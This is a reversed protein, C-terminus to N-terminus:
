RQTALKLTLSSTSSKATGGTPSFTLKLSVNLKGKENLVKKAAASPKFAVIFTGGKAANLVVHGVTIQKKGVKAKGLVDLKGAGPLKVSLSASGNKSSVTKRTLTFLNSVPTTGKDTGGGTTGGGTTGGGGGGGGSGSGAKNWGIEAVGARSIAILAPPVPAYDAAFLTAQGAESVISEEYDKVTRAKGEEEPTNGFVAANDDFALGYTLTCIGFGEPANAGSTKSWDGFSTAPTGGFNTKLCNAGKQSPNSAATTRFGNVEDATPETFKGSGNEVQTWYPTTPASGASANIALTPNANRATAIDSYGISGDTATLKEVLKGNGNECNSTLFDVSDAQKGPAATGGCQGGSGFEAGPWERNGNSTGSEFKTTWERAPEITRLYDKFAFTTGSKDFRVVRIIPVECDPDGALEPFAVSWKSNELGAWVKEFKAKPLRVRLLAKKTPTGEIEAKTVTRYEDKLLEPNCGEPFNVLPAVAGAAIPFIHVKGENGAVGDPVVIGGEETGGSNMLAVQAPTPPDDSGAFRSANNRLEMTAIGAGSGNANYAANITGQGPTGLCYGSKFNLNFVEQAGKAFSAGNGEINPGACKGTTFDAGAPAAPGLTAFATTALVLLGAVRARGRRRPARQIQSM